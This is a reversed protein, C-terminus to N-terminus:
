DLRAWIKRKSAYFLATLVILFLIVKLGIRKSDELRPEAAWMLFQTVDAAMQEVTAETGDIYEVADESLPPPMAIQGGAFFRNYSMGEGLDFDEPPEEEYGVLIAHVYDPGGKRAKAILSLDPPLAGNNAVRAAQDNAYPGPIRDAPRGPRTFMEGEDNPGDEVEYAYEAAIAQVDAASLGTEELNRFSLYEVGHCAACVETYVHFGRQLAPKDFRGFPGEFSWDRDPLAESEADAAPAALWIGLVAAIGAVAVSRM